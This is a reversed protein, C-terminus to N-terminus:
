GQLGPEPNDYQTHLNRSSMKPAIFQPSHSLDVPEPPSCDAWLHSSASCIPFVCKRLSSKQTLTDIPPDPYVHTFLHTYIYTWPHLLCLIVRPRLHKEFMMQREVAKGLLATQPGAFRM